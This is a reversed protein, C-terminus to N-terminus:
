PYARSLRAFIDYLAKYDNAKPHPLIAKYLQAVLRAQALFKRKVEDNVLLKDEAEDLWPM